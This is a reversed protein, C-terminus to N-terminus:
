SSRSRHGAVLLLSSGFPPSIASTVRQEVRSVYYLFHNLWSPPVRPTAPKVPLIKEKLHAAFKVPVMWQYFYRAQRVEGGAVRVLESLRAETYRTYHHNLDDHSTWLWRFAPVTILLAGEAAVLDLARRLMPLPDPFHELVDLLLVLAYSRGPQFREDFPQIHVRGAWQSGPTVGDPSMEIGEVFGYRELKDFLLGDGCGVDLIANGSPSPLLRRITELILDERARWWWHKEYLERYRLTYEPDM